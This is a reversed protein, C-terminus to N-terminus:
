GWLEARTSTLDAIYHEHSSKGMCFFLEASSKIPAIKLHPVALSNALSMTPAIKQVKSIAAGPSGSEDAARWSEAAPDAYM